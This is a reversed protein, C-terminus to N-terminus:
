SGKQANQGWNNTAIVIVGPSANAIGPFRPQSQLGFQSAVADAAGQENTGPRYYVTSAPIVGQAYNGTEIVDFGRARMQDGAKEALGPIM